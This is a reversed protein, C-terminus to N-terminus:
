RASTGPAPRPREAGGVSLMAMCSDLGGANYLQKPTRPQLRRCNDRASFLTWLSRALWGSDTFLLGLCVAHSDSGCM